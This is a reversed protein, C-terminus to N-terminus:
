YGKKSTQKLANIQKQLDLIYLTLEEVKQILIANMKGLEVGNAEVEAASPVNPLHQNENIFQEVENLTPLKYEKGFVYDPWGTLTVEVEKTKIKGAISANSASLAGTVDLDAPQPTTGVTVFLEKYFWNGSNNCTVWHGKLDKKTPFNEDKNCSLLLLFLPTFLFILVIKKM